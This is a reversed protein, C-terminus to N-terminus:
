KRVEPYKQKNMQILEQLRANPIDPYVRRLEKIDRALVSRAPKTTHYQSVLCIIWYLGLNKSIFFIALRYDLWLSSKAHAKTRRVLYSIKDRLQSNLNEIINTIGSKEQIVKDGYINHYSFNEDSYVRDVKPLDLNFNFLEEVTKRKSLHYFYFKKGTTTVGISTWVYYKKSKSQVFTYLEDMIMHSFQIEENIREM